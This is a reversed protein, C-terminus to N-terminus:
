DVSKLSPAPTKAPSSSVAKPLQHAASTARADKIADEASQQPMGELEEIVHGYTGLTLSADHGLQRAVYIVNQGEHLLLSAFSHRLDYPRGAVKVRSRDAHPKSAIRGSPTRCEKGRRARCKPCPRELPDDVSGGLAASLARAFSHRRWSQWAAESWVGGARSPFVLEEDGPNGSRLRWQALDRKLPALLKVTRHHSTKTDKVEGVSAAREVLITREGIDGWRLALAEGPRLGAYALVSLLAADRESSVARMKEVTAPALPRVEAKPPLPVPRVVRAPNVALRGSEVARRLINSLVSLAKRVAVPGGGAALRDQQWRSLIEPTLERLPLHGLPSAIHHDYVSSYLARAKISPPAYTPTWVNSVYQDLTETGADLEALTGLRRRRKLDADFADADRKLDFTRSQWQEGSMWRVRWKRRQHGEKDTWTRAQVSM